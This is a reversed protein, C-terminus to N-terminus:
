EIKHLFKLNMRDVWPGQRLISKGNLKWVTSYNALMGVESDEEKIGLREEFARHSSHVVEEHLYEWDVCDIKKALYLAQKEVENLYHNAANIVYKRNGWQGDPNLAAQLEMAYVVHYNILGLQSIRETLKLATDKRKFFM